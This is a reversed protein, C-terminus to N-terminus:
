YWAPRDRKELIEWLRGCRPGQQSYQGATEAHLTGKPCAQLDFETPWPGGADLWDRWLSWGMDRGATDQYRWEQSAFWCVSGEKSIGFIPQGAPSARYHVQFGRLWGFFALAQIFGLWRLRPSRREFWGTWPAPGAQMPGRFSCRDLETAGSELEARLPLFYAPRSLRGKFVGGQVTGRVLFSLGPAINLPALLVGGPALQELWAPELDETAATVMMRDFPASEPWGLRGDGQRLEVERDAFARLHDWAESLVERDVDISLVKKPGVMYSLLAANYGTGAGVELVRLGPQLDLDELMQAMLSPQSSSSVAVTCPSGSAEPRVHTILARDAYVLGLERPGPDRTIIERWRNSKRSVQFVRDLFRHRPTLRFAAILRGSWLAGMAILRDVMQENAEYPQM